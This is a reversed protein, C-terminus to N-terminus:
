DYTEPAPKDEPHACPHIINNMDLYLNDFEIKNPNPQSSDIPVKVGEIIQTHTHTHTTRCRALLRDAETNEVVVRLLLANYM